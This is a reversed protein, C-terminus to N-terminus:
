SSREDFYMSKNYTSSSREYKVPVGPIFLKVGCFDIKNRLDDIPYNAVLLGYKAEKNNHNFLGKINDGVKKNWSKYVNNYKKYNSAIRVQIEKNRSINIRSIAEINKIEFSSRLNNLEQDSLFSLIDEGDKSFIDDVPIEISHEIPIQIGENQNLALRTQTSITKVKEDFYLENLWGEDNFLSIDNEFDSYYELIKKNAFILIDRNDHYGCVRGPLGQVCNAVQKSRIEIMFRCDNKLRRLDKGATLAGMVLLIVKKKEVRIKRPLISLGEQIPLDAGIEKRCGIIITEIGENKLGILQQKLEAAQYTDRCRIVGFGRESNKLKLVSMKIPDSLLTKDDQVEFHEYDDALPKILGLNLMETVGFYNDHRLGEIVRVEIGKSNADLIDFPTASVSLLPLEPLLKRVNNFFAKDFSSKKGCGYQDEDRVILKVNLNGVEVVGHSKFKHMPMVFINSDYGELSRVNQNKLDKDPMSTLFLISEDEKIFKIKPLILNCLHKITGTKGSQM